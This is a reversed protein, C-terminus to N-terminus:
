KSPKVCTLKSAHPANGVMVGGSIACRERIEKDSAAGFIVSLVLLIALTGILIWVMKMAM